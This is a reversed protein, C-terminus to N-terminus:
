WTMLHSDRPIGFALPVTRWCRVSLFQPEKRRIVVLFWPFTPKQQASNFGLWTKTAWHIPCDKPSQYFKWALSQFCSMMSLYPDDKLNLLWKQDNEHIWFKFPPIRWHQNFVIDRHCPSSYDWYVLCTFLWRNWFRSFQPAMVQQAMARAWINRTSDQGVM